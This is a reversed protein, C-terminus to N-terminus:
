HGVPLHISSFRKATTRLPREHSLPPEATQAQPSALTPEGHRSEGASSSPYGCKSGGRFSGTIVGSRRRMVSSMSILFREGSVRATLSLSNAEDFHWLEALTAFDQDLRRVGKLDMWSVGRQGTLRSAVAYAHAAFDILAEFDDPNAVMQEARPKLIQCIHEIM